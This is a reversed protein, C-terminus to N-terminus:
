DFSVSPCIWMDSDFFQCNLLKGSCKPQKACYLEKFCGYTEAVQYAGCNERCTNDVNMDVENQIFGQLLRTVQIFTEGEVHHRPDCRHVIRSAREMVKRLREQTKIVRENFRDRMLHSESTYNGISVLWFSVVFPILFDNKIALKSSNIKTKGMGFTRLIMWSFQMMAYGKIETVSVANYM